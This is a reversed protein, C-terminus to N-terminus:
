NNTKPSALVQTKVGKILLWLIIPLEGLFLFPMAFKGVLIQYDPFLLFTFSIIIYAIGNLVLLVGFIRPIFGSKYVLLGFPILWLGWYLQVMQTGYSGIKLFMMALDNSQEPEFSQLISGKLVMLAVIKFVGAIFDIPVAVIVLGVMLRSQRGNVQKLLRYLVFVVLLFIVQSILASAIGMRWAFENALINNATALADGSVIIKNPIYILGYPAIIALLLYLLGALRATKKLSNMHEGTM